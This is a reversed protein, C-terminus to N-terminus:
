YLEDNTEGGKWTLYPQDTSIEELIDVTLISWTELAKISLVVLKDDPTHISVGKQIPKQGLGLAPINNKRFAVSDEGGYDKWKIDIGYRDFVKRGVKPLWHSPENYGIRVLNVEEEQGICDFNIAATIPNHFSNIFQHAGQLGSEEGSFFAFV